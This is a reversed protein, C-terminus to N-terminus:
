GVGPQLKLGEHAIEVCELSFTVDNGTQSDLKPGEYRCPWGKEFTWEMIPKGERTCLAIKGSMRKYQRNVSSAIWQFFAKSKTTGRRLVLNEYRAPGPKKHPGDNKGGEQYETQDIYVNLGTVERFHAEEKVPDGDLTVSFWSGVEFEDPTPKAM